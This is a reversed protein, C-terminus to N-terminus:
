CGGGSSSRCRSPHYLPDWWDKKHNTAALLSWGRPRVSVILAANRDKKARDALYRKHALEGEKAAITETIHRLSSQKEDLLRQVGKINEESTTLHQNTQDRLRLAEASREMWQNRRAEATNLKATAAAQLSNLSESLNSVYSRVSMTPMEAGTTGTLVRPPNDPQELLFVQAAHVSDIVSGVSLLLDAREQEMELGSQQRFNDVEGQLTRARTQIGELEFTLEQTSTEMVTASSLECM